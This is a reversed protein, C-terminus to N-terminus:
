HRSKEGIKATKVVIPKVETKTPDYEFYSEQDFWACRFQKLPMRTRFSLALAYHYLQWPAKKEKVANPKYDLIYMKNNRVQLMDIHGTVGNDINKEWYWVPVECAITAKDNILM